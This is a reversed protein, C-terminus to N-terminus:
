TKIGDSLSVDLSREHTRAEPIRAPSAFRARITSSAPSHRDFVSIAARTPTDRGNQRLEVTPRPIFRHDVAAAGAIGQRPLTEQGCTTRHSGEIAM